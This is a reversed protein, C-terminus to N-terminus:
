QLELFYSLRNKSGTEVAMHLLNCEYGDVKGIWESIHLKVVSYTDSLNKDQVLLEMKKFRKSMQSSILKM